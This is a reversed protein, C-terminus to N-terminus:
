LAIWNAGGDDSRLVITNMAYIRDANKPDAAVEGFYWARQWIRNDSSKRVWTAGADDSRYLGGEDGDVLAYVRHPAADSLAIGIRGVHAPFGHGEVPLWHAGGDTSKYLGSGPGNSPPYISWPPRRTQWLAAYVTQPNGPEFALDIAGTDDNPGLVKQWHAGGDQTRFVGREPNPGYPHGLAAVFVTGANKPDILIKATQQSDRLGVLAWTKGADSSKYVGAGQSIDSRMDAEGTGVYLVNPDSPAVAIAGIAGLPQADFIPRWTRGADDTQWVGGNVAGFYFRAPAGPVGSVALARGGRQPGISRWQLDQFLSPDVAHAATAACLGALVLVSRFRM